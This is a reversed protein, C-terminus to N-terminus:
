LFWWIVVHLRHAGSVHEVDSTFLLDLVALYPLNALLRRKCCSTATSMQTEITQASLLRVSLTFQMEEAFRGYMRSGKVYNM